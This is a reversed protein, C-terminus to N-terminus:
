RCEHRGLLKGEPKKQIFGPRGLHRLWIRGSSPHHSFDWERKGTLVNYARIHGPAADTNESVRMGLIILNKYIIGPTNATLFANKVDKDLDNHLDIKGNQGFTPIIKGTMADLCFLFPGVNVLLRKNQAKEDQWYTVGRVTGGWWPTDDTIYQTPNFFWVPKGTTANLAFFNKRPTAGYLIGNVVIPNCQIQSRNATDPEGPSYTWAVKLQGVNTKNIQTLPSYRTAEKNGGYVEWSASVPPDNKNLAASLLALLLTGGSLLLLLNRIKM